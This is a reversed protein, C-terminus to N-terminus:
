RQLGANGAAGLPAAPLQWPWMHVSDLLAQKAVRTDELGLVRDAFRVISGAWAVSLPLQGTEALVTLASCTDSVGLLRRMFALQVRECAGTAWRLPAQMHRAGLCTVAGSM